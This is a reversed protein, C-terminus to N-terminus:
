AAIWRGINKDQESFEVGILIIEKNFNQYKQAYERDKIQALADECTGNLKFEFIYIKNNLIVVADIRGKNTKVEADVKMGILTFVLYFITQYYREQKIQIDYPINAFFISLIEFFHELDKQKLANVLRVIYGGALERRVGSVTDSLYELFANKVEFNPYSLTYLMDEEKYNVITLYGTQVLLAEIRLDEIDYSGFVIEQTELQEFLRIDYDNKKILNILFTPTGTEFWYNKFENTQMLLLISFPNYVRVDTSSFRYGNYWKQIKSLLTDKEKQESLIWKNIHDNFYYLLENQTYGLLEAYERHMTIDFLNNLGSFVSIKSFKSVGTLFVFRLYPDAEKIVSYFAKLTERNAKALEINNIVDIIPKDYEDILIVVKNIQELSEILDRFQSDFPKSHDISVNYSTATKFMIETIYDKLTQKNEYLKGGFSIKIVPYEAWEYDSEAIWLGKFLESQNKFIAELTSVLLSKGFRRPRSLFYVSGSKILEYIYRTKDIYVYNGDIIKEFTQIGIPLKRLM